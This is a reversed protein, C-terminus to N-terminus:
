LINFLVPWLSDGQRVGRQVEFRRSEAGLWLQVYAEMGRYLKRLVSVVSVEIEFAMLAELLKDQHVKDFAKEVDLTAMWLKEGWQAAKEVVMRLVHLADDCGPGM